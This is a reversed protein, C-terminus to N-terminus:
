TDNRGDLMKLQDQAQKITRYQYEVVSRLTAPLSHNLAQEYKWIAMNDLNKCAAVVGNEHHDDALNFGALPTAGKGDHFGDGKEEQHLSCIEEQLDTSFQARIRSQEACFNKIPTYALREAAAAFSQQGSQCTEILENLMQVIGEINIQKKMQREDEWKNM